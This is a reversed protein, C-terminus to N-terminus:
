RCVMYEKGGSKIIPYGNSNQTVQLPQPQWNVGDSSLHLMGDAVKWRGQKGGSYQGAVSGAPESSYTESGSTQSVMGNTYFVVRESSSTGSRQNYTFGCWTNRTLFESLQADGSGAPAVAQPKPSGSDARAFVLRRASQLNPQGNAEPEALFVILNAGEYQAM